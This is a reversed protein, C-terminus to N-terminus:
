TEGSIVKEVVVDGQKQVTTVSGETDVVYEDGFTGFYDGDDILGLGSVPFFYCLVYYVFSSILCGLLWCLCYVKSWNSTMDVAGEQVFKVFGPLLPWVGMIWAVPARFNIGKTYWYISQDSIDYLDTLKLQRKRVLYFDSFLIGTFPGLFVAYGGIVTLFKTAGNLLSWPQMIFAFAATLYGGRKLNFWRPLLGSLDIGNSLANEAVAIGFQSFIFALSAFAVAARSRSSDNAYKQIASLLSFPEWLLSEEPYLKTACSTCVIGILAVVMTSLPVFLIQALFQDSPKKAFRTFDSQSFIHTSISGVNSMIGYVLTWGLTSGKVQEVGAVTVDSLLAGGGGARACCWILLIFVTPIVTIAAVAFPRQFKEPPIRILPLCLVSFIIFCTFDGTTMTGKALEKNLSRFSPWLAEIFCKLTEGGWWIQTSYWIFSLIIRNVLPFIGGFVGWHAKQLIPFGVHWKAGPYGTMVCIIGVMTNGIIVTLMSQWVNLGLAILSSGTTWGGINFSGTVVWLGIFSWPGYTRRHPPLPVTDENVYAKTHLAAAPRPLELKHLVNSIGM